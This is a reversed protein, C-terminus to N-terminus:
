GGAMILVKLITVFCVKIHTYKSIILTAMPAKCYHKDRLTRELKHCVAAGQLYYKCYQVGKCNFHMM